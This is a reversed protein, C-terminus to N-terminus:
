AAARTASALRESIEEAADRFLATTRFGHPRPVPADIATEGASRGPGPTMVIVRSAMYAAEEV